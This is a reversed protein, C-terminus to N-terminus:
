SKKPRNRTYGKQTMRRAGAPLTWFVANNAKSVRQKSVEVTGDARDLYFKITNM